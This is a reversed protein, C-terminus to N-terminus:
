QWGGSLGARRVPEPSQPRDWFFRLPTLIREVAASRPMFGREVAVPYATLAVGTVAISAPWKAATKDIALENNQNTERLLHSFSKRQQMELETDAAIKGSSMTIKEVKM